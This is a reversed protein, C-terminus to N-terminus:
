EIRDSARQMRPCRDPNGEHIGIANIDGGIIGMVAAAQSSGVPNTGIADAHFDGAAQQLTRHALVDIAGVQKVLRVRVMGKLPVGYDVSDVLSRMIYLGFGGCSQGTFDPEQEANLMVPAGPYYMELVLTDAAPTVTFRCALCTDQLPQRTHKIANTAAEYVALLMAEADERPWHASAQEIYRRLAPLADLRFPLTLYVDSHRDSPTAHVPHAALQVPRLRVMLVTKDDISRASGGCAVLRQRLMQLAAASPLKADRSERLWNAVGDAGFEVGAASCVESIGDSYMVLQDDNGIRLVRQEYVESLLVGIPLNDGPIHEVDISGARALLGMTHGANVVTVTGADADFMYLALTVFCNMRILEPTMKKHLANVIAAACPLTGGNSLLEALVQYYGNKVGAGIMAAHIGKGMVDGVLVNFRTPTHQSVAIFDGHLGQSPEVYHAIWAGTMEQPVDAMLLARQIDYCIALERARAAKVELGAQKHETIDIMAGVLKSPSGDADILNDARDVVHRVEGNPRIIRYELEFRERENWGSSYAKAIRIRDEPHILTICYDFDIAQALAPDLGFIRYTEDSWTIKGCSVDYEWSGVHAIKQANNLLQGSAQLQQEVQRFHTVDTLITVVGLVSTGPGFQPLFEARMSRRGSASQHIFDFTSPQGQMAALVHPKCVTYTEPSTVAIVKHGTIDALPRGTLKEFALNNFQYREDPTIYGVLMPLSDAILRLLQESAVLKQRAEKRETVDILAGVLRLARGHEDKVMEAADIVQRVSGDPLVLKFEIRFGVGDLIAQQLVSGVRARDDPHILASIAQQTLEPMSTPLLGHTRYNEDSWSIKGSVLDHEWSGVHAIAQAQKLSDQSRLLAQQVAKYQGVDTVVTVTGEVNGHRDFQPMFQVRVDRPVLYADSCFEIVSAEGRLAAALPLRLQEHALPGILDAVLMGSIQHCPKGTWSEYTHNIFRYRQDLGIYNVLMPLSDGISRLMQDSRARVQAHQNLRWGQYGLGALLLLAVSFYRLTTSRWPALVEDRNMSVVATLAYQSMTDFGYIRALGDISSILRANGSPLKSTYDRLLQKGKTYQGVLSEVHPRRALIIGDTAALTITGQNGIAFDAFYREFTDVAISAVAVGAFRGDPHDIRRSLTVMWANDYYSRLPMGVHPARSPHDRHFRFYAHLAHDQSMDPTALLGIQSQGQEDLLMLNRLIPLETLAMALKAQLGPMAARPGQGSARYRDKELVELIGSLILNAKDFSDNGNQAIARALNATTLEAQRLQENRATWREWGIAALFLLCVLVLLAVHTSILSRHLKFPFKFTLTVGPQSKAQAPALIPHEPQETRALTPTGIRPM